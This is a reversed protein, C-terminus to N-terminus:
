SNAFKKIYNINDKIKNYYNNEIEDLKIIKKEINDNAKERETFIESKQKNNLM